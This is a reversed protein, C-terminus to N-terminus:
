NNSNLTAEAQKISSNFKEKVDQIKTKEEELYEIVQQHEMTDSPREYNRMWQMMSKHAESLDQKQKEIKEIKSSSANDKSRMSNKVSDLKQSLKELRSMEPMIEDHIAMVEEQLEKEKKDKSGGSCSTLLIMVILFYLSSRTLQQIMQRHIPQILINCSCDISGSENNCLYTNDNVYGRLLWLYKDVYWSM